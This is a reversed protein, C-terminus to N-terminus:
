ECIGNKSKITMFFRIHIAENNFIAKYWYKEINPLINRSGFLDVYIHVRLKDITNIPLEKNYMKHKKGLTCTKYFKPKIISINEKIFSIKIAM